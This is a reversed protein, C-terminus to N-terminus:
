QCDGSRGTRALGYWVADQPRNRGATPFYKLLTKPPIGSIDLYVNRHRRVLFFATNMWLPRGGHALLIKLKPFDVAIDDVYM